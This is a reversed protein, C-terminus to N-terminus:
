ALFEYGTLTAEVWPENGNGVLPVPGDVAIPCSVDFLGLTVHPAWPYSTDGRWVSKPFARRVFDRALSIGVSELRAVIAVTGSSEDGFRDLHTAIVARHNPPIRTLGTEATRRMARVENAEFRDHDGFYGITVHEGIPIVPLTAQEWPITSGSRPMPWSGHLMAAHHIRETFTGPADFRGCISVGTVDKRDM